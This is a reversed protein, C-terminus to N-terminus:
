TIDNTETLVVVVDNRIDFINESKHSQANKLFVNIKSRIKNLRLLANEEKIYYKGITLYTLNM